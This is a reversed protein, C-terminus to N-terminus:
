GDASARIGFSLAHSQGPRLVLLDTGSNFADPPCTMPEVALGRRGVKDGSYVQLWPAAATLRTSLGTGPHHLVVEWAEDPLAGFAHDIQQPGVTRAQRFDLGAEEVPVTGTPLLREDVTVVRGAPVQLACEDVPALGCTLYPHSSAGYPAPADGVNTSTIEVALGRDAALRYRVESVLHFPYGYRPLLSTRFRAEGPSLEVAEWDVWCALGHLASHTAHENVPLEHTEGGFGYRGDAIRNPWPVLTKGEYAAPIGSAPVPLVLDTGRWTLAGLAAGSSFVTARYEGAALTHAAGNASRNPVARHHGEEHGPGRGPRPGVTSM